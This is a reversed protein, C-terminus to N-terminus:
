EATLRILGEGATAPPMTARFLGNVSAIPKGFKIVALTRNQKSRNYVIAGNAKITSNPWVVQDFTLIATKGDVVVRGGQLQKGGPMYGPGDVEGTPLYTREIGPPLTAYLAIFHQDMLSDRLFGELAALTLM